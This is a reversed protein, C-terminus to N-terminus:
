KTAEGRRLILFSFGYSPNSHVIDVPSPMQVMAVKCVRDLHNTEYYSFDTCGPVNKSGCNLVTQFLVM